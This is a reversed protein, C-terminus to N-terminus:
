LGVNHTLFYLAQFRLTLEFYLNYDEQRQLFKFFHRFHVKVLTSAYDSLKGM